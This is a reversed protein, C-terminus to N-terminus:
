VNSCGPKFSEGLAYSHMRDLAPRVKDGVRAIQDTTPQGDAIFSTRPPSITQAAFNFIYGSTSVNFGTSTGTVPGDQQLQKWPANLVFERLTAVMTQDQSKVLNWLLAAQAWSTRNPFRDSDLAPAVDVLQVQSACDNGVSAGYVQWIASALSRSTYNTQFCSNLTPMLSVLGKALANCQGNLSSTCVCTADLKYSSFSVIGRIVLHSQGLNCANGTWNGHCM